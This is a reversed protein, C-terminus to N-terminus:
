PLAAPSFSLHRIHQFKYINAALVSVRSALFTFPPCSESEPRALHIPVQYKATPKQELAPGGHGCKLAQMCAVVRNPIIRDCLHLRPRPDLSPEALSLALSRSSEPRSDLPRRSRPPPNMTIRAARVPHQLLGCGAVASWRNSVASQQHRLLRNWQDITWQTSSLVAGQKKSYGDPSTSVTSERERERRLPKKPKRSLTKEESGPDPMESISYLGCM